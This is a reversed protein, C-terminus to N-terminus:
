NSKIELKQYFGFFGNSGLLFFSESFGVLGQNQKAYNPKAAHGAFADHKVPAAHKELVDDFNRRM